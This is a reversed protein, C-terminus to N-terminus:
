LAFIFATIISAIVVSIFLVVFYFGAKEINGREPDPNYLPPVMEEVRDTEQDKM